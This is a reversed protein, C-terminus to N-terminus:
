GKACEFPTVHLTDRDDGDMGGGFIQSIAGRGLRKNFFLQGGATDTCSVNGSRSTRCEADVTIGAKYVSETTLSIGDAILIFKLEGNFYTSEWDGSQYILGADEM